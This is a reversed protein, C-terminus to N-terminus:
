PIVCARPIEVPGGFDDAVRMAALKRPVEIGDDRQRAYAARHLNRARAYYGLGAWHELVDDLPADALAAADPFSRMFREFYPIVTAVQTQQLMVESVWARYASRPHQWPLDRRGHEDYWALLREAFGTTM